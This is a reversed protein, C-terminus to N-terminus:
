FSLARASCLQLVCQFVFQLVCQLVRQLVCQLVRQLVCQLVRQLVCQLVCQLVQNPKAVACEFRYLERPVYSCRVSCCM